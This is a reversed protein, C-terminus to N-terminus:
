MKQALRISSHNIYVFDAIFITLALSSFIITLLFMLGSIESYSQMAISTSVNDNTTQIERYILKEAESANAMISEANEDVEYTVTLDSPSVEQIAMYSRFCVIAAIAMVLGLGGLIIGDVTVRSIFPRNKAYIQKRVSAANKATKTPMKKNEQKTIKIIACALHKLEQM